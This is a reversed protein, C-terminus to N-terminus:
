SPSVSLGRTLQRYASGYPAALRVWGGVWSVVVSDAPVAPAPGTAHDREDSASGAGPRGAPGPGLFGMRWAASLVRLPLVVTRGGGSVTLSDHDLLAEGATAAGRPGVSRLTEAGARVLRRVVDAPVDDVRHWGAGPPIAGRWASDRAAPLPVAGSDGVREVVALMDAAAVTVDAPGGSAPASRSVLVGFPLWVYATVSGAASRLRLLAAPDLRVVRGVFAALDAVDAPGALLVSGDHRQGGAEAAVSQAVM